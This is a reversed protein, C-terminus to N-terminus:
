NGSANRLKVATVVALTTGNEIHEKTPPRGWRQPKTGLSPNHRTGNELKTIDGCTEAGIEEDDLMVSPLNKGWCPPNMMLSPRHSWDGRFSSSTPSSLLLHM